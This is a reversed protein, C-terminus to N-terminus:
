NSNKAGGMLAFLKVYSDSRGEEKGDEEEEGGVGKNKVCVEFQM